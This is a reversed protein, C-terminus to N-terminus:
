HLAEEGTSSLRLRLADRVQQALTPEPLAAVIEDAFAQVLLDRAEAEPIGRSRLYFLQA